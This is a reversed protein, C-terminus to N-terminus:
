SFKSIKCLTYLNGTKKVGQLAERLIRRASSKWVVVIKAIERAPLCRGEIVVSSMNEATRSGIERPMWTESNDKNVRIWFIVVGSLVLSSSASRYRESTHLQKFTPTPTFNLEFNYGIVTRQAAMERSTTMKRMKRLRYRERYHWLDILFAAVHAFKQIVIDFIIVVVDM